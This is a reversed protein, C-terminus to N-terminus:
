CRAGHLALAHAEDISPLWVRRRVALAFFPDRDLLRTVDDTHTRTTGVKGPWAGRNRGIRKKVL